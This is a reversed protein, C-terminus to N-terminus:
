EVILKGKMTAHGAGCMVSCIYDFSGTHDAVFEVSGPKNLAVKFEPLSVGHMGEVNEFNLKVKDGKKVHIEKQDFEFNKAKLTIEKSGGSSQQSSSQQQSSSASNSQAAPASNGGCATLAASIGVLLVMGTLLKKM